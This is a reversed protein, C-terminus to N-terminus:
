FPDNEMRDYLAELAMAERIQQEEIRRAEAPTYGQGQWYEAITMFPRYTYGQNEYYDAATM